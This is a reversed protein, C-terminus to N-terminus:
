DCSFVAFDRKFFERPSHDLLDGCAMFDRNSLACTNDGHVPVAFDRNSSFYDKVFTVIQPFVIRIEVFLFVRLTVIHSFMIPTEVFLYVQVTVAFDHNSILRSVVDVLQVTQVCLDHVFQFIV